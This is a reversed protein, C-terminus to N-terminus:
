PASVADDPPTVIGLMTTAILHPAEDAALEGAHVANAATHVVAHAMTVLWSTPVDTRFRGESRGRELLLEVRKSLPAHAEMLAADPMAQEAAVVLAGFRYTLTWSTEVLRGLAAVPDGALDLDSMAADSEAVARDVVAAVLAARNEFHGYLTVRGVGAAKAIENVSADPDRALCSTAAELIADINRRADARLPKTPSSSTV